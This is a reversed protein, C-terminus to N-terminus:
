IHCQLMFDVEDAAIFDDYEQWLEPWTVFTYKDHDMSLNQNYETMTMEKIIVHNNEYSLLLGHDEDKRDYKTLRFMLGSSVNDDFDFVYEKHQFTLDWTYRVNCWITTM